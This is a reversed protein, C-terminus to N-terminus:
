NQTKRKQYLNSSELDLRPASEVKNIFVLQKLKNKEVTNLSRVEQENTSNHKEASGKGFCIGM